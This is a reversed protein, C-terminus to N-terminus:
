PGVHPAQKHALLDAVWSALSVGDATSTGYLGGIPGIANDQILTTHASSGYLFTGFRDTKAQLSARVDLLGEEFVAATLPVNSQCNNAGFGFFLSMVSDSTASILGGMFKQANKGKAYKDVLYAMWDAIYDSQNPCAAGCDKLFTDHFGWV